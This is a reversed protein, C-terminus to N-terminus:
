IRTMLQRNKYIQFAVPEGVSLEILKHFGLEPRLTIKFEGRMASSNVVRKDISQRDYSIVPNGKAAHKAEHLATQEEEVKQVMAAGVSFGANESGDHERYYKEKEEEIFASLQTDYHHKIM